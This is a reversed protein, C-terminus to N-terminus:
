LVAHAATVRAAIPYNKNALMVLGIRKDPVFVVYAGFGDTSGTKNFLAPTSTPQPTLPTAPNPQMAMTNSNGALLRDLTVPYSYQEWGLGQIMDGKKFYGVHTGQVADRM